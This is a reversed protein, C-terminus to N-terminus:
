PLPELERAALLSAVTSPLSRIDIPKELYGDFGAALLRDRDDKMAFATVAVVPLAAGDPLARLERLAAVGDMGPLQIDMLVLHPRDARVRDLAEEASRAEVTSYGRVGLVDRLLKLNRENDEVILIVASSM